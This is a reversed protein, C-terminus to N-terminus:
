KRKKITVNKKNYVISNDPINIDKLFTCAGILCNKGIITKGLIVTNAYITTNDGIKPYGNHVRNTGITVNQYITVNEGLEVKSAIVVGLGEHALNTSKPLKCGIDSNNRRLHRIFLLTRDWLSRKNKM